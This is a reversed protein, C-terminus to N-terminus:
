AQWRPPSGAPDLFLSRCLLLGLLFNVPFLELLNVTLGALFIIIYVPLANRDKWAAIALMLYFLLAGVLGIQNLLAMPTSDTRAHFLDIGAPRSVTKSQALASHVINSGIGLGKGFLVKGYAPRHAIYDTAPELRGWLSDMVDHRAVMKPLALLIGAMILISTLRVASKWRRSALHTAWMALMMVLLVLATASGTLYVFAIALTALFLKSINSFTFAFACVCLVFVGLSNPFSFTGNIRNASRATTFLPIGYHYEYLAFLLEIVLVAALYRCLWAFSRQRAAWVGLLGALLYAVPRLGAVAVWTGYLLISQVFAAAILLGLLAPILLATTIKPKTQRLFVISAIGFALIFIDKLWKTALWPKPVAYLGDLDLKPQEPTNDVAAQALAQLYDQYTSSPILQSKQLWFYMGNALIALVLMTFLFHLAPGHDGAQAHDPHFQNNRPKVVLRTGKRGHGSKIGIKVAFVEPLLQAGRSPWRLRRRELRM